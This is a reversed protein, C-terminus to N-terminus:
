FDDVSPSVLCTTTLFLQLAEQLRFLIIDNGLQTLHVGDEKFFGKNEVSIEPYKVYGGKNAIIYNAAERNVRVRVKNLVDSEIKPRWKFRPLIQSWVIKTEPLKKSLRKLTNIINKRLAISKGFGIDNGGCHLVLIHPPDELRLM